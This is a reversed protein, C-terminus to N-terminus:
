LRPNLWSEINSIHQTPFKIVTAWVRIPLIKFGKAAFNESLYWLSRYLRSFLPMEHNASSKNIAIHNALPYDYSWPLKAKSHFRHCVAFKHRWISGITPVFIPLLSVLYTFHSVFGLCLIQLLLTVVNVTRIEPLTHLWHQWLFCGSTSSPVTINFPLFSITSITLLCKREPAWLIPM